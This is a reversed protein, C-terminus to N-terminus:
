GPLQMRREWELMKWPTTTKHRSGSRASVPWDAAPAARNRRRVYMHAPLYVWLGTRGYSSSPGHRCPLKPCNCRTTENSFVHFVSKINAWLAREVEKRETRQNMAQVGADNGESLRRFALNM